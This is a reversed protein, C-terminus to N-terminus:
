LAHPRSWKGLLDQDLLKRAANIEQKSILLALSSFVPSSVRFFFVTEPALFEKCAVNSYFSIGLVFEKALTKLNQFVVHCEHLASM